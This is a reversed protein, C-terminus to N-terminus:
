NILKLGFKNEKFYKYIYLTYIIYLTILLIKRGRKGFEYYTEKKENEFYEQKIKCALYLIKILGTYAWISSEM